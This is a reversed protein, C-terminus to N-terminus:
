VKRKGIRRVKRVAESPLVLVLGVAAGAVWLYWPVSGLAQTVPQTIGGGVTQGITLPPLGSTAPNSPNPDLVADLLYQGDHPWAIQSQEGRNFFRVTFLQAAGDVLFTAGNPVDEKRMATKLGPAGPIIEIQGGKLDISDAVDASSHLRVEDEVWIRLQREPSVGIMSISFPLDKVQWVEWVNWGKFIPAFASQTM